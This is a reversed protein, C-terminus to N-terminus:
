LIFYSLINHRGKLTQSQFFFRKCPSLPFFCIFKLLCCSQTIRVIFPLAVLVVNFLLCSFVGVSLRALNACVIFIHLLIRIAYKIRIHTRTFLITICVLHLTIHIKQVRECIYQSACLLLIIIYVIAFPM